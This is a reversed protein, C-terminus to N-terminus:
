FEFSVGIVFCIIIKFLNMEFFEMDKLICYFFDM